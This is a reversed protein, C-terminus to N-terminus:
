YKLFLATKEAKIVLEQFADATIDKVKADIWTRHLLQEM